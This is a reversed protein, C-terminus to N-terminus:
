IYSRDESQPLRYQSLFSGLLILFLIFIAVANSILVSVNALNSPVAM